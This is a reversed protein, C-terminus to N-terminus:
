QPFAAVCGEATERLFRLYTEQVIDDAETASGLMRYAISFLLRRFEAFVDEMRGESASRESM